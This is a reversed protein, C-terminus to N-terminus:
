LIQLWYSHTKLYAICFLFSFIFTPFFVNKKFYFKNTSGFCDQAPLHLLYFHHSVSLNNEERKHM